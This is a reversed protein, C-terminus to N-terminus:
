QTEVRQRLQKIGGFCGFNCWERDTYTQITKLRSSVRVAPRKTKPIEQFYLLACHILMHCYAM